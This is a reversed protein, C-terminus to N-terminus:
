IPLRIAFTSGQGPVSEAEIVGSHANVIARSIALGLGTGGKERSRSKDVRYFRDFIRPLDEPPIGIGNDAVRCIAMGGQVETSVRITGENKSYQIANSVLNTIVQGIKESDGMCTAPALSTEIKLGREAALPMLMEASERAAAALDFPQRQMSEQGADLRALQLLAEIMRRMRQAARQCAEITEKYEAASRERNLAMQAQSLVVAVPTRLEHSVDITFRAQEHFAADLREFTSNLVAALRGLESETEHHLIRSSLDGSAIKQAAESIKDIPKIARTAAWWGGALGLILIGSAAGGLLLAFNRLERGQERISRGVVIADGRPAFSVVERFEGRRRVGPNRPDPRPLDGPANETRIVRGDRRWIVHYVPGDGFEPFVPERLEVDGGERFPGGRDLGPLEPRFRDGRPREFRLAEPAANTTEEGRWGERRRAGEGFPGRMGPPGGPRLVGMLIGMREQLQQDTRRQERTRQLEFATYSLGSLVLFLIVGHWLQLQWRISRLFM